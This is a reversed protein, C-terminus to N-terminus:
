RARRGAGPARQLRLRTRVAPLLLCLALLLLPAPGPGGAACGGGDGADGDDGADVAGGGGGGSVDEDAAAALVLDCATPRGAVVTCTARGSLGDEAAEVTFTGPVIVLEYRGDPGTETAPQGEVNVVVEPRTAGDSARTVRGHLKGADDPLAACRGQTCVAADPCRGCWVGCAAMPGCEVADCAAACPDPPDPVSCSGELTDCTQGAPCTGCSTGCIPDLGCERALCNPTCACLGAADCAWGDPCAGCSVTGCVPDLGCERGRCDAVCTVCTGDPRCTEGAACAGCSTGCQPDPGCARGACDPQCGCRGDPGCVQGATCTGCSAGCQPDPGCERGACDPECGCRGDPGCTQGAACAGCDSGCVPDPGCERGACNAVCNAALGISCWTAAGATVTCTREAAAHGAATARVTYSGAPLQFSWAANGEAATVPPVPEAAGAVVAVQAGPLRVSMDATGQGRDEFVVGQLTGTPGPNVSGGGELRNRRIAIYTTSVTRLNHVCGESCSRCEYAWVSGWPDGSEYLFVHGGSNSANRYVFADARGARSWDVPNWHYTNWRFSATSYPHSCTELAVPGPVQWVKGVFGSCDAGWSGSHTCDPCSGVCSGRAAGAATTWCAGGWWYSFGVGTQALAVIEDPTMTEPEAAARQPAALAVLLAATACAAFL